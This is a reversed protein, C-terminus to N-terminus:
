SFPPILSRTQMCLCPSLSNVFQESSSKLFYPKCESLAFINEFTILFQGLFGHVPRIYPNDIISINLIGFKQSIYKINGKIKFKRININFNNEFM